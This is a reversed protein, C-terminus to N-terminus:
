RIVGLRKLEQTALLAESSNPYEQLLLQYNAVTREPQQLQEYAVGQKYYAAPVAGTSDSAKHKQIVDEYAAVAEAYQGMMFYSQGILLQANAVTPAEPFVRIYEEFGQIAMEWQGVAYDSYAREYYDRSSPPVGAMIPPAAPPPPAAEAGEEPAPANPDSEAPPAVPMQALAQTVMVTLMDVGKRIADLEQTMKQVQVKNESVKEQLAALNANASNVLAQQDAFGKSRAAGESDVRASVTELQQALTNLELMLRQNQEQLTRLDLFMQQEVRNQATAAAPALLCPALAALVIVIRKM